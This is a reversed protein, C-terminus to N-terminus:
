QLLWALCPPLQGSSGSSVKDQGVQLVASAATVGVYDFKERWRPGCDNFVVTSRQVQPRSGVVQPEVLALQVYPDPSHGRGGLLHLCRLLTVTLIGKGVDAVPAPGFLHEAAGSAYTSSRATEHQSRQQAFPTYTLELTLVGRRKQGASSSGSSSAPAYSLAGRDSPGGQHQEQLPPRSRLIRGVMASGGQDGTAAAAAQPLQRTGGGAQGSSGAQGSGGSVEPGAPAGGGADGAGSAGAREQQGGAGGGEGGGEVSGSFTRGTAASVVGALLRGGGGLLSAPLAAVGGAM